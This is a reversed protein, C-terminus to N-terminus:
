LKIVIHLYFIMLIFIPTGIKIEEDIAFLQTKIRKNFAFLLIGHWYFVLLIGMFANVLWFSFGSFVLPYCFISLIEIQIYIYYLTLTFFCILSFENLKYFSKLNLIILWRSLTKVESFKLRKKSKYYMSLIFSLGCFGAWMVISTIYATAYKSFNEEVSKWHAISSEPFGEGFYNYYQGNIAHEVGPFFGSVFIYFKKQAQAIDPSLSSFDCFCWLIIFGQFIMALSGYTNTYLPFQFLSFHKLDQDQM